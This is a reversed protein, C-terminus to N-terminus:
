HGFRAMDLSDRRHLQGPRKSDDFRLATVSELPQIPGEWTYSYPASAAPSGGLLMSPRPDTAIVRKRVRSLPAWVWAVTLSTLRM